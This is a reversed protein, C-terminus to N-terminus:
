KGEGLLIAAARSTVAASGGGVAILADARAEKLFSAAEEVGSVPGHERAAPGVGALVPGLAQRLLDLAGSRSVTRGCIVVARRSGGRELERRLSALSDAGQYVRLEPSVHQYSLSPLTM